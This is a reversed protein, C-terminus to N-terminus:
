PSATRYAAWMEQMRRGQGQTFESMCRDYSYDMFNHVPDAGGAPCTDKGVPCGETADKQPPTDDVGDGPNACGNEFTHFLGLWHGIEHVGTYGRNFNVLSGGPLTRWDVVVGDLGPSGQYWFPYTSFGLVLESLQAIYLNLTQPGGRRLASKMESEHGLPDAFWATNRKVSSGELHFRVGTDAGGLKGGYAANLTDIQAAVAGDPARRTGDTLLHVWVPVDISAPAATGALREGLEDIVQGVQGPEPSRPEPSRREPSRRALDTSAGCATRGASASAHEAPLGTVAGLLCVLLVATPRRAM